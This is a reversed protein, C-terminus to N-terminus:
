EAVIGAPASLTTPIDFAMVTLIIERNADNPQAFVYRFTSEDSKGLNRKFNTHTPVAEAIKSLVATFDANRNFIIVATKTDRWSLYSLLQDITALFAKEGKWFKCEGIFVSKGDVRILIDTKGQFNFTEGTAQGHFAGNLQVLFHFRLDEEGMDSFAHPSLEMVEVMNKMIRLIEQYDEDSLAPEPKFSGRTRIQEVKPVRRSVPVAYTTPADARRKMPLGIAATMGADALLRDKRTKIQSTVLNELQSNFQAASESLARLYQKISNVTGQYDRKIAEANQDTRVYTLLLEGNGIMARPPSLSYSSPQVNFFGADGKFPVAIVTRNGPVYFARSRDYIGRMPDGSVDVQTEGSEAIYIGDDDIVPVNLRFEEILAEVLDHESANLLTAAPIAQIKNKVAQQQNQLVGFIESKNFLHEDNM